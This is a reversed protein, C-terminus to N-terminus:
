YERRDAPLPEDGLVALANYTLLRAAQDVGALEAIVDYAEALSAPRHVADHADSAVFQARGQELLALATRQARRGMRQSLSAATVQLMGGGSIWEALAAPDAQVFSYREPHALIPRLGAAVFRQLVDILRQCGIGHPWEVLAYRSHNITYRRPHALVKRLSEDNIEIECGSFLYLGDPAQRQLEELAREVQEPEHRYRFSLHPTAVIAATGAARAAVLMARAQEFTAPGDDVSPIVHAHLDVFGARAPSVAASSHMAKLLDM